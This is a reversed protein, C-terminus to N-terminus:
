HHCPFQQYFHHISPKDRTLEGEISDQIAKQKSSILIKGFLYKCCLASTTTERTM